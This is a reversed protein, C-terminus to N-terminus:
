PLIPALGQLLQASGQVERGGGRGAVGQRGHGCTSCGMVSAMVPCSRTSCINRTAAPCGRPTLWSCSIFKEPHAISHRSYASSGALPSPAPHSTLAAPHIPPHIRGTKQKM